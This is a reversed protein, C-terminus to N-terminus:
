YSFVNFKNSSISESSSVFTGIYVNHLSDSMFSLGVDFMSCSRLSCPGLIGRTTERDLKEQQKRQAVRLQNRQQDLTQRLGILLDYRANSRLEIHRLM